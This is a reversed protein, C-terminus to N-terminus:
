KTGGELWPCDPIPTDPKFEISLECGTDTITKSLGKYGDVGRSEEQHTFLEDDMVLDVDIAKFTLPPM